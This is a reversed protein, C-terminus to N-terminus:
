SAASSRATSSPWCRRRLLAPAVLHHEDRIGAQAAALRLAVDPLIVFRTSSTQEDATM